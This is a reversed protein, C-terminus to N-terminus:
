YIVLWNYRLSSRASYTAQSSIRCRQTLLQRNTSTSLCLTFWDEHLRQATGNEQYRM